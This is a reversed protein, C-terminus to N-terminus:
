RRARQIARAMGAAAEAIVAAQVQTLGSPLSMMALCDSIAAPVESDRLEQELAAPLAPVQAPLAESPPAFKAMMEAVPIRLFEAVRHAVEFGAGRGKLMKSITPQAIGVRQAAAQQSGFRGVLYEGINAWTEIDRRRLRERETETPKMVDGQLKTITPKVV